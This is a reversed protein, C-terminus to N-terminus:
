EGQEKQSGASPAAAIAARCDNWGARYGNAQSRFDDPVPSFDVMQPVMHRVDESHNASLAASAQLPGLWEFESSLQEITYGCAFVPESNRMHLNCWLEGEEQKVQVLADAELGNGRIWYAGEETPKKETWGAREDVSSAPHNLRALVAQEIARGHKVCIKVSDDDRLVQHIAVQNRISWLEEDSLVVGGRQLPRGEGDEYRALRARLVECNDAATEIRQQDNM